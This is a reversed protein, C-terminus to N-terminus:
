KNTIPPNKSQVMKYLYFMNSTTLPQNFYVINCIKGNIGNDEGVTLDDYTMYPVVEISSKVLENNLFIDLTGGSYNIIINNWKQMLINKKKYIIRMGNEDLNKSKNSFDNFSLEEKEDVVVLLTNSKANYKVNPKNGYSLLSTYKAYSSNTSPPFSDIYFWFSIGYQYNFNESGNLSEYTGLSKENNIYVPENILQNGGQLISKNKFHPLSFYLIFLIIAFILMYISGRTTNQYEKTFSFSPLTTGKFKGFPNAIFEFVNVFLSPIYFLINIFLNIVPIDQLFKGANIFKYILGLITIIILFNLVFSIISNSNNLKGITNFLWYIFLASILLGFFFILSSFFYSNIVKLTPNTIVFDNFKNFFLSFVIGIVIYSLLIPFKVVKSGNSGTTVYLILFLLFLLGLGMFAYKKFSTFNLVCLALIIFLLNWNLFVYYKNGNLNKSVDSLTKENFSSMIMYSFIIFTTFYIFFVISKLFINNVPQNINPINITLINNANNYILLFAILFSLFFIIIPLTLYLYNSFIKFPNLSAFIIILIFLVVLLLIYINRKNSIDM